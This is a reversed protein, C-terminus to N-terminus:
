AQLFVVEDGSEPIARLTVSIASYANYVRMQAFATVKENQARNSVRV